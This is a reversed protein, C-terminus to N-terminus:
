QINKFLLRYIEPRAFEKINGPQWGQIHIGEIRQRILRLTPHNVSATMRRVQRNKGETLILKIWATPINKRFRVPPDRDPVDIIAPLLTAICPKTKHIKGDINIQVGKCLEQLAAESITGDVQVWYEREHAHIPNLLRQNLSPDNTLILLGESDYDLRGVPYVDSPVDFLDKLTRKNEASSFQCLVQFPKYIVFYRFMADIYMLIFRSVFSPYYRRKIEIYSIFVRGNAVLCLLPKKHLLFFLFGSRHVPVKYISPNTLLPVM